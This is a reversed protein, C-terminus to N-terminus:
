LSGYVLIYIITVGGLAALCLGCTVLQTICQSRKQPNDGCDSLKVCFYIFVVMMVILAIAFIANLIFKMNSLFDNAASIISDADQDEMEDVGTNGFDVGISIDSDDDAANVPLFTYKFFVCMVILFASFIINKIKPNM